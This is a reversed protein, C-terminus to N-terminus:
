GNAKTKLLVYHIVGLVLFVGGILFLGIEVEGREVYNIVVVWFCLLAMLVPLILAVKKLFSYKIM